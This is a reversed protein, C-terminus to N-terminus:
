GFVIDYYKFDNYDELYCNYKSIKLVNIFDKFNFNNGKDDKWINFLFDKISTINNEEIKKDLKDKGANSLQKTKQREYKKFFIKTEVMSGRKSKKKQPNLYEFDEEFWFTFRYFDDKSLFIDNIIQHKLKVMTEKEIDETLIKCGILSLVTFLEATNIYKDYEINNKEDNENKHEVHIEFLSFLKQINKSSLLRLAKCIYPLSNIYNMYNKNNKNNKNNQQNNKQEEIKINDKNLDKEKNYIDKRYIYKKIFVEFFIDENITDKKIEYLKVKKYIGMFKDINYQFDRETFKNSLKNGLNSQIIENIRSKNDSPIIIKYSKSEVKNKNKNLNDQEEENKDMDEKIEINIFNDELLYDISLKKYIKEIHEESLKKEKKNDNIINKENHNVKEFADLEITNIDKEENILRKENLISRLKRIVENQAESQLTVSKIIWNDINQFIKISTQIIIIMYKSVFSRLFAIRYKYKNKENQFMKRINEEVNAGAEKIQSFGGSFSSGMVEITQKKKIKLTKRTSLNMPEKFSKLLSDIKEEQAMILNICNDFIKEINKNIALDISDSENKKKYLIKRRKYVEISKSNNINDEGNENEKEDEIDNDNNENFNLNLDILPVLDKLIYEKKYLNEKKNKNKDKSRKNKMLKLIDSTSEDNKRQHLNIISNIISLFKETELLFVEKIQIYFKNLEFEIFNSNKIEQLEKISVTEKINILVWLASNLENIDLSIDNIAFSSYFANPFETFFSNYKSCFLNIVSRKDTQHNLFDRYKKQILNLRDYINKRQRKLFHIFKGIHKDYKINFLQLGSLVSDFNDTINKLLNITKDKNVKLSSGRIENVKFEPEFKIRDKEEENNEQCILKNKTNNEMYLFEITNVIFNFIKNKIEEERKPEETTDKNNKNNKDNKENKNIKNKQEDNKEELSESQSNESEEMDKKEEMGTNIERYAKNVEYNNDINLLNLDADNITKTFGFMNYFLSIKYINENYEKKYFDFHEKTFYPIDDVLREVLKKDKSNAIEQNLEYESYVIDNLPDYKKKNFRENVEEENSIINIIFDIGARKIKSNEPPLFNFDILSNISKINIMKQTKPKQTEDIYGNLYHELLNCQNLNTPFDVIIFGKVSNDKITQIEKELTLLSHEDKPNPKKNEQIQNELNEKQKLLNSINTQNEIIEKKIEEESLKPFDNEINYILINLLVEDSPVILTNNIKETKNEEEKKNEEENKNENENENQNEDINNDKQNILDLFPQILRQIPEFEKLKDEKEKKLQEIQNPKMSKFKPNNEIPENITKYQEYYNRFIKQVSYIKLNQYKKNIEKSIFKKGCFPLGILSIKYNIYDWKGEENPINTKNKNTFKNDLLDLIVDGYLYNEVNNIPLALDELEIETPEYDPPYFSNVKAFDINMGRFEKNMIRDDNWLGVYNKYDEKLNIEDNTLILKDPNIEDNEKNKEKIIRAEADDVRDRMPKNNIFLELLKNFTKIDILENPNEEEYFFIEMTMEIIILVIKKIISFDKILKKRRKTIFENFNDLNYINLSSLFINEDFFYNDKEKKTNTKQSKEIYSSYFKMKREIERQKSYIKWEKAYKLRKLYTLYKNHKQLTIGIPLTKKYLPNKEKHIFDIPIEKSKERLSKQLNEYDTSQAKKQHLKNKLEEKVKELEIKNSINFEPMNNKFNSQFDKLGYKYLSDRLKSIKFKNEKVIKNRGDGFRNRIDHLISTFTSGTLFLNSRKETLPFNKEIKTYNNTKPSLISYDKLKPFINPLKYQSKKKRSETETLTYQTSQNKDILHNSPLENLKKKSDILKLRIKLEPKEDIKDESITKNFSFNSLNFRSSQYSKITSTLQFKNTEKFNNDENELDYLLDKNFIDYFYEYDIIEKVKKKIEEQTLDNLAIRIKHFQIKKKSIANKLKYLVVVAKSIDKNMIDNFEDKRVELELNEKFYKKLLSFNEKIQYTTQSENFENFQDETIENINYLIEAFRYGNSFEKIINEIPPDLKIEENLWNLILEDSRSFM